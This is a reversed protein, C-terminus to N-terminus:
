KPSVKLTVSKADAKAALEIPLKFRVSDVKCLGGKGDRCYGYTLAVLLTARGTQKTVPIRFKTSEGDTTAETRANLQDAAILSQEGEMAVRYTVPLLANLKYGEPLTFEVKFDIGNSSAIQQPALEVTRVSSSATHQEAVPQPATLGEIPFERAKKTALEVAVIRLNNTDAIFLTGDAIAMGAPEALQVPNLATGSKGTGLWTIAERTKLDVFKIKHNYSDAVFLGGNHFLIGLPHQFRAEDKAGDVDGFEFLTRGNPLSHPGVPTSITGTPNELDNKPDTTIQRVSSGESDVVYLNKGDTTIGSPQALAGQDLEGNQIDERGSGAYQWITNSGLQHAWIQHPGAMAVYLVGDVVSLDWPSNLATKLLDGGPARTRAQEGTGALTSVTKKALDVTRLQHNETDAVYLTDGILTVGQPHDFQAESYSGDKSGIAGSGIVSLLKGELSSVVIRNNNSDSIFLRKGAEDALVKGPFRLPSAAAKSRELDFKVPTEDLTGKAKHYAILKQVVTDLLERNGEGSVYGCYQGEPDVLVLSPWAKVGFKRWVIMNADNIVPHEIEYRLIAKRINGTEKENDFKASHVGIVVIEKGYKKELFDLDPLVHMCNICCFTWFDLLVIKGRLDRMSIPGGTNLWEVGGDLEPAPFRNPFPNDNKGPVGDAAEEDAPKEAAKPKGSAAKGATTKETKKAGTEQAEARRCSGVPDFAMAGVLMLLTLRRVFRSSLLSLAFLM